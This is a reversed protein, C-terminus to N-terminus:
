RKRAAKRRAKDIIKKFRALIKETQEKPLRDIFLIGDLHDNEHQIVRGLLGDAKLTFPRANEDYAQVTVVAPRRVTKNVGPVSLCGEEIDVMQVSTEIIQPNIFVRRVGDDAMVVFYREAVGVQPAALGVGDAAEMAVFMEDIHARFKDDVKQLDVASCKKRLVEEGIQTIRM